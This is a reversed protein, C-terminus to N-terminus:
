EQKEQLAGYRVMVPEQEERYLKPSAIMQYPRDKWIAETLSDTQALHQQQDMSDFGWEFPMMPTTAGLLSDETIATSVVQLLYQALEDPVAYETTATSDLTQRLSTAAAITAFLTGTTVRFFNVKM